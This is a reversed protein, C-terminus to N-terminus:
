AVRKKKSEVKVKVKGLKTSVSIKVGTKTTMVHEDKAAQVDDFQVGLIDGNPASFYVGNNEKSEIRNCYPGPFWYM